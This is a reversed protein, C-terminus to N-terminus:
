RPGIARFFQQTAAHKQGSLALALIHDMSRMMRKREARTEALVDLQGEAKARSQLTRRTIHISAAIRGNDWGAAAYSLVIRWDIAAKPRGKKMKKVGFKPTEACWRPFLLWLHEAPITTLTYCM